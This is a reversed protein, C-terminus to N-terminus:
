ITAQVLILTSWCAKFKWIRPVSAGGAAGGYRSFSLLFLSELVGFLHQNDSVSFDEAFQAADAQPELVVRMQVSGKIRNLGESRTAFGEGRPALGESRIAM